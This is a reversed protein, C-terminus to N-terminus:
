GVVGSPGPALSSNRQVPELRDLIRDMEQVLDDLSEEITDPLAETDSFHRQVDLVAQTIADNSAAIELAGVLDAVDDPDASPLRSPAYRIIGVCLLLM